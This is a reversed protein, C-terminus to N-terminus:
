SYRSKAAVILFVIMRLHRLHECIFRVRRGDTAMQAM